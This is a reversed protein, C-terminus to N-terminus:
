PWVRRKRMEALEQRLGLVTQRQSQDGKELRWIAHKLKRMTDGWYHEDRSTWDDSM